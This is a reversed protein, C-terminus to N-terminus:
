ARTTWSAYLQEMTGSEHHHNVEHENGDFSSRREHMLGKITHHPSKIRDNTQKIKMQGPLLKHISDLKPM